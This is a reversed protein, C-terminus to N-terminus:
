RSALDAKGRSVLLRRDPYREPLTAIPLQLGMHLGDRRDAASGESSFM